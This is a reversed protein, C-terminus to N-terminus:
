KWFFIDFVYCGIMILGIISGLIMGTAGGIVTGVTSNGADAIKKKGFLVEFLFVGVVPGILIGPLSFFLGGILGGLIAGVVGWKSSGFWKAGIAGSLSDIIVSGVYLVGIIMLTILRLGSGEQGLAFYHLCCGALILTTGPLFPIITGAFGAIILLFVAAWILYRGWGKFFDGAGELFEFLALIEDPNM